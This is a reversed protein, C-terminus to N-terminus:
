SAARPDAARGAGARGVARAFASVTENWDRAFARASRLAAERMAALRAPDGALSEIAAAIAEPRRPVAFGAGGAVLDPLPGEDAVVPVCGALMAEVVVMGLGEGAAPFVFVDSGAFADWLREQSVAGHLRARPGLAEARRAVVAVYDPAQSQPGYLDLEIARGDAPRGAAVRRVADVVLHQGKAPMYTGATVVRLPGDVRPARAPAGRRVLDFGPPVVDVREAAIGLRRYARRMAESVVVHHDCEHLHRALTWWRRARSLPSRYRDPYLAQGFGVIPAFGRRRLEAHLRGARGYAYTDEVVPCPAVGREELWRLTAEALADASSAANVGLDAFTAVHLERGAALRSAIERNYIEGGTTPPDPLAPVLLLLASPASM